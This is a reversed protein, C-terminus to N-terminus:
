VPSGTLTMAEIKGPGLLAALVRDADDVGIMRTPPDPFRPSDAMRVALCAAGPASRARLLDCIRRRDEATACVLVRDWVGDIVEGALMWDIMRTTKGSQRGGIFVATDPGQQEGNLYSEIQRQRPTSM